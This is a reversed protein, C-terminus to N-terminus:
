LVRTPNIALVRKADESTQYQLLDIRKAKDENAKQRYAIESKLTQYNREFTTKNEVNVKHLEEIRVLMQKESQKMDKLTVNLYSNSSKSEVLLREKQEIDRSM